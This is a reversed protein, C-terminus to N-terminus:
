VNPFGTEARTQTNQTSSPSAMARARFHVFLWNVLLSSLLGAFVGGVVDTPWHVGRYIRSIGVLLALVFTLPGLFRLRDDRYTLLWLMTAVAFSTSTHGSPFSDFKWPEQPIAYDLLSPRDREILQKAVQAILLGSVLITTIIPAVFGRTRPSFLFGLCLIGQVHGLGLWSFFEFFTDAASSHWGLHIARFTAEDWAFIQDRWSM